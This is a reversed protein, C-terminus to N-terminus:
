SLEDFLTELRVSYNHSRHIKESYQKFERLTKEPSASLQDVMKSAEEGDAAQYPYEFGLVDNLTPHEPLVFPTGSGLAEFVRSNVVGWQRQGEKTLGFTLLRTNYWLNLEEPVKFNSVWEFDSRRRYPDIFKNVKEQSKHNKSGAYGLGRRDLGLDRFGYTGIPFYLSDYGLQTAEKQIRKSGCLILDIKEGIKPYLYDDHFKEPNDDYPGFSYWWYINYDGDDVTCEPSFGGNIITIQGLEPDPNQDLYEVYAAGMQRAMMEDGLGLTHFKLETHNSGFQLTFGSNNTSYELPIKSKIRRLFDSQFLSKIM